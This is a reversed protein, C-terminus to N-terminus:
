KLTDAVASAADVPANGSEEKYLEGQPEKAGAPTTGKLSHIYAVIQAMQSPTIENKWSKMGKEPIGYKISSFIDGASGGHLWYEDCLNPGITGGGQPGHCAVCTKETFLKKGEEIDSAETLFTVTTEDVQAAANKLNAKMTEEALQEEIALEQLQLPGSKTVHYYVLYGVSWVITLYFGYKWWPPLSNDLERIGDYDHDTLIAAEKEVSVSKNLKDWLPVSQKEVYPEQARQKKLFTNIISTLVVIAILEVLIIFAVANFATSGFGEHMFDTLASAQSTSPMLQFFGFLAAIMWASQNTSNEKSQKRSYEKVVSQFLKTLQRLYVLLVIALICLAYFAPQEYASKKVVAAASGPAAAAEETQAIISGTSILLGLATIGLWPLKSFM